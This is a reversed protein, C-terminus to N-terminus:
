AQMPLNWMGIRLNHNNSIALYEVFLGAIQDCQGWNIKSAM